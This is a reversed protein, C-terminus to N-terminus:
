ILGSMLQRVEGELDRSLARQIRARQSTLVEERLGADGIVRHILEALDPAELGDYLVGAGDAAEPVGGVARAVVPVGAYMAEVLPLGYGEHASASVFVDAARYYAALGEPSAFGEFCVNPLDLDGILMRLMAMYRPVGHFSGVIVLRSFQNIARNYWAFAQILDEIRKNPAVRGVFLITKLPTGAFKAAVAIDPTLDLSARSLPLSLVRVGSLGLGALEAADYASAGWLAECRRALEPLQARADALRGALGDDYGRFFEAPTINHYVLIRRAVSDAFVSQAESAIGFHHLCVDRATASYESLPRCQGAMGPAAHAPPVFVDSPYGWKRFIDRLLIAEHSVADGEAFGAMVQDIRIM